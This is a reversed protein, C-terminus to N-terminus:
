SARLEKIGFLDWKLITRGDISLEEFAERGRVPM